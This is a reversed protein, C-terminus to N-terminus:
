KELEEKIWSTLCISKIETASIIYAGGDYTVHGRNDYRIWRFSLREEPRFTQLFKKIVRSVQAASFDESSENAHIILNGVEFPNWYEDKSICFDFSPFYYEDESLLDKVLSVYENFEPDNNDLSDLDDDQLNINNLTLQKFWNIEELTPNKIEVDFEFFENYGM